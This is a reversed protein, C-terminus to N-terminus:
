AARAGPLFESAVGARTAGADGAGVGERRYTLAFNKFRALTLVSTSVIKNM